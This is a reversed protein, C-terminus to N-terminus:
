TWLSPANIALNKSPQDSLLFLNGFGLSLTNAPVTPYVENLDLYINPLTTSTKSSDEDSRVTMPYGYRAAFM